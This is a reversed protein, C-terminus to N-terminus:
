CPVWPRLSGVSGLRGSRACAWKQPDGVQFSLREEWRDSRSEHSSGDALLLNVGLLDLTQAALVLVARRCPLNTLGKRVGKWTNISRRMRYRRLTFSILRHEAFAPRLASAPMVAADPGEYNLLLVCIGMAQRELAHNRCVEGRAGPSGVGESLLRAEFAILANWLVASEASIPPSGKAFQMAENLHRRFWVPTKESLEFQDLHWEHPFYRTGKYKVRGWQYLPCQHQPCHTLFFRAWDSRFYPFMGSRLDSYMCLPCYSFRGDSAVCLEPRTIRNTDIHTAKLGFGSLWERRQREDKFADIDFQPGLLRVDRKSVFEERRTGWLSANRDLWSSITESPKLSRALLHRELGAPGKRAGAENKASM